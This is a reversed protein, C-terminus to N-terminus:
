DLKGNYVNGDRDYLVLGYNDIKKSPPAFGKKVRLMRKFPTYDVEHHWRNYRRVVKVVNPHQRQLSRAFELRQDGTNYVTDTNGGRDKLSVTKKCLFANFLITDWGGKLCRLSLDTDENYRGRWRFPIKNNILICSYIRTNVYFPPVNERQPAFFTYNMGSMAIKAYRETFNECAVFPAPSRVQIKRNRNLRYFHYINDDLIWHRDYGRQVADDFVWNRVPISGEGLESFNQPLKRTKKEGIVRVYDRYENPEVCIQYDVNMRDLSKATKPNDWRGKSIIYIPYKNQM